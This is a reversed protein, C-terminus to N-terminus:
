WRGGFWISGVTALIIVVLNVSSTYRRTAFDITWETDLGGGITVEGIHVVNQVSYATTMSAFANQMFKQLTDQFSASEILMKASRAGKENKYTLLLDFHLVRKANLSNVNDSNM